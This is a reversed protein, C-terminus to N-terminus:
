VREKAVADLLVEDLTASGALVLGDARWSDLIPDAAQVRRRLKGLDEDLVQVHNGTARQVREQLEVVQHEWRQQWGQGARASSPMNPPVLLLDIDSSDDGDARAFSGFLLATRPAISWSGISDRMLDLAAGRLRTLTEIAPWALHDRNAVYLVSPGQPTATVIGAETLRALVAGVAPHSAGALVAVRRGSLPRTTGALVTLVPADITPIISRLPLGAHM